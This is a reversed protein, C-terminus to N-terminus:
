DSSSSVMTNARLQEENQVYDVSHIRKHTGTSKEGFVQILLGILILSFICVAAWVM